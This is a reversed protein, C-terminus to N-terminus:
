RLSLSRSPEQLHGERSCDRVHQGRLVSTPFISTLTTGVDRLTTPFASGEASLFRRYSAPWEGDVRFPGYQVTGNLNYQCAITERLM